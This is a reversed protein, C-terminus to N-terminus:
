VLPAALRAHMKGIKQAMLNAGGARMDAALVANATCAGHEDIPYGNTRTQHQCHLRLAADNLRDLAHRRSGTPKM